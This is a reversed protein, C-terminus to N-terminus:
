IHPTHPIPTPTKTPKIGQRKIEAWAENLDARSPFRYQRSIRLRTPVRNPKTEELFLHNSVTARHSDFNARYAVDSKYQKIRHQRYLELRTQEDINNMENIESPNLSYRRKGTIKGTSHEFGEFLLTTNVYHLFEEKAVQKREDKALPKFGHQQYWKALQTQSLPKESTPEPELYLRLKAKRALHTCLDLLTTGFRTGRYQPMVKIQSLEIWDPRSDSLRHRQIHFGAYAVMNGSREERAQIAIGNTYDGYFPLLEEVVVKKGKLITTGIKRTRAVFGPDMAKVANEM